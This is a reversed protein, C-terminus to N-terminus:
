YIVTMYNTFSSAFIQVKDLNNWVSHHCLINICFSSLIALYLHFESINYFSAYYQQFFSFLLMKVIYEIEQCGPKLKSFITFSNPIRFNPLMRSLILLFTPQCVCTMLSHVFARMVKKANVKFFLLLLLQCKNLVLQPGPGTSLLM